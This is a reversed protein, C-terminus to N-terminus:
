RSKTGGFRPIVHEGMLEITRLSEEHSIDSFQVLGLFQDVGLDKLAGIVSICQEPDGICMRHEDILTEPEIEGSAFKEREEVNAGYQEYGKHSSIGGRFEESTPQRPAAM